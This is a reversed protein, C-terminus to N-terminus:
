LLEAENIKQIMHTFYQSPKMKDDQKFLFTKARQIHIPFRSLFHQELLHIHGPIANSTGLVPM